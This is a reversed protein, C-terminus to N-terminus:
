RDGLIRRIRELRAGIDREAGLNKPEYYHRGDLEDPLYQQPVVGFESDHSYVYGRGHGLRKAGPYHADRLHLPVRGFGGARIDAIAADIGVYAANSKATTALYVTAEALPIRGEPMGIFAVADAAAVAIALAQPDALGVDESASIVLRRAIFRPDEGAEIMRALYHLAADPDSGRISKIFASIVDYHEDGQRDYRLLAKDVAQSIDDASVEPVSAGPVSAGPASADNGEDDADAATAHSLAVAAGAELGTLARRADGSALRVLASRAEDSLAVSANLGRPDTVARDVLLGIDDDTLPQLTLLLSRSLLPSIVSFSPNETTAAILIVWGNEVGPLLADQQAKTFRHIEDLFLITTQGYLDRQTVAEQMVERVDKVGATIASLEVFRRGSSRAIAQALTTKGTGPPGWLIISVAGPATAEPDALAVIPSGARLLHRQGAVEALSVPRMRVALPTQGSLLAAPSTM